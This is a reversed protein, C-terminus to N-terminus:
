HTSTNGSIIKTEDCEPHKKMFEILADFKNHNKKDKMFNSLVEFGSIDKKNLMGVLKSHNAVTSQLAEALLLNSAKLNELSCTEASAVTSSFSFTALFLIKYFGM